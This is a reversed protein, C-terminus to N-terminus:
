CIVCLIEEIYEDMFELVFGTRHSEFWLKMQNRFDDDGAEAMQKWYEYCRELVYSSSGDSDDMDVNGICFFTSNTLEFAQKLCQKEILFPIKSDLFDCLEDTFDSAHQWDVYGARCYRYEIQDLENRLELMLKSNMKFDYQMQLQNKLREDALVFGVLLERIKEEPIKSVLDIVETKQNNIKRYFEVCEGGIGNENNAEEIDKEVLMEEYKFLVAAMHKCNHGDAAHPCSCYMDKVDEEDLSIEVEYVDSGNVSAKIENASYSFDIVEGDEFYEIGRDLIHQRFLKYWEM